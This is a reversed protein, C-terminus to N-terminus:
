QVFSWLAVRGDQGATALLKGSRSWAVCNVEDEHAGDFTAVRSERGLTTDWLECGNARAVALTSGRPAFAISAVNDEMPIVKPLLPHHWLQVAPEWSGTALVGDTPHWASSTVWSLDLDQGLTQLESGTSVEWLKVLGAQDTTVIMLGDPSFNCSMVGKTHGVLKRACEGTRVDWLRTTCDGSASAVIDGGVSFSCASVLDTHGELVVAGSADADIAGVVVRKDEGASAM